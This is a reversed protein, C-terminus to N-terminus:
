SLPGFPNEYAPLCRRQRAVRRLLGRAALGDQQVSFPDFSLGDFVPAQLM